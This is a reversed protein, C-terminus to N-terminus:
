PSLVFVHCCTCAVLTEVSDVESHSSMERENGNMQPAGSRRITRRKRRRWIFPPSSKLPQRLISLEVLKSDQLPSSCSPLKSRHIKEALLIEAHTLALPWALRSFENPTRKLLRGVGCIVCMSKKSFCHLRELTSVVWLFSITSILTVWCGSFLLSTGAPRESSCTVNEAWFYFM